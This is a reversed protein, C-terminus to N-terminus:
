GISGEQSELLLGSSWGDLTAYVGIEGWSDRKKETEALIRKIRRGNQYRHLCLGISSMDLNEHLM